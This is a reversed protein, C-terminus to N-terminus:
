TRPYRREDLNPPALNLKASLVIGVVRIEDDSFHGEDPRGLRIPESFTPETSEAVLVFDDGDRALRKCTLEVLDHVHREVIVLDGPQPPETSGAYHLQLAGACIGCAVPSSM